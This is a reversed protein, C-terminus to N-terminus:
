TVDAVMQVAVRIDQSVPFRETDKQRGRHQKHSLYRADRALGVWWGSLQTAGSGVSVKHAAVTYWRTLCREGESNTTASLATPYRSARRGYGSHSDGGRKFGKGRGDSPALFAVVNGDFTARYVRSGTVGPPM